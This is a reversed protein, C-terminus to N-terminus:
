KFLLRDLIKNNIITENVIESVDELKVNKYWIQDPYIVIVPGFSCGGLCGSKNARVEHMLNNKRLEEVFKARIEFGADSCSKKNLSSERKNICIFIHKKYRSM